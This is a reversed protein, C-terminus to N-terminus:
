LRVREGDPASDADIQWGRPEAEWASHRPNSGWRESSILASSPVSVAVSLGTRWSSRSAPFTFTAPLARAVVYLAAYPCPRWVRSYETETAESLSPVVLSAQEEQVCGGQERRVSATQLRLAGEGM